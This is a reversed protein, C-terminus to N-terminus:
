NVSQFIKDKSFTLFFQRMLSLQVVGFGRGFRVTLNTSLQLILEKGYDARHHGAQEHEVIRRGIEWYTATMLSNVARVSARRAADLLEVVGALVQNYDTGKGQVARKQKNRPKSM